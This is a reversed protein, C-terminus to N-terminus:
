ISLLILLFSLLLLLPPASPVRLGLPPWPFLPALSKRNPPATIEVPVTGASGPFREVQVHRLLHSHSAGDPECRFLLWVSQCPIPTMLSQLCDSLHSWYM